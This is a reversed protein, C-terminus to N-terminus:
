FMLGKFGVGKKSFEVAPAPIKIFGFTEFVTKLFYSRTRIKTLDLDLSLYYQRYRDFTLQNGSEDIYPPNFRGGTMGEAGYGVAVNLWRPFKSTERLFSHINVSAWYTQGNYDKLMKETYTTGLLSPRYRAYDSPSFSFKLTIRQEKWCLEQGIVVASGLTNALVDGASFGWEASYGDLAEITTQYASGVLGGYWAAKKHEVGSWRFLGIGIRGIYYSTMVHGAKDMQLWEPNDNFFHFSSRPYDKYWLANLGILSGAYLASETAAVTVFRKKHFQPAPQFFRLTDQAYAVVPFLFILLIIHTRIRVKKFTTIIYPNSIHRHTSTRIRLSAWKLWLPNNIWPQDCFALRVTPETIRSSETFGTTLSYL